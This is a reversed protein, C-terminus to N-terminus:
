SLEVVREAEALLNKVIKAAPQVDRILGATRGTFPLIEHTRGEGVAAM